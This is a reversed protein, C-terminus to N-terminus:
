RGPPVRLSARMPAAPARQVVYVRRPVVGEDRFLAAVQLGRAAVAARVREEPFRAVHGSRPPWEMEFENSRIADAEIEAEIAFAHVIKGAKQRISATAVGVGSLRM